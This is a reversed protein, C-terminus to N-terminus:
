WGLGEIRRGVAIQITFRNEQQNLLQGLSVAGHKIHVADFGPRVRFDCGFEADGFAGHPRLVGTGAFLEAQHHVFKEGAEDLFVDHFFIFM